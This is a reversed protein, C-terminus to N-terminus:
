EKRTRIYKTAITGQERSLGDEYELFARFVAPELAIKNTAIMGDSTWLWIYYGDHGVYVADGLYLRDELHDMGGLAPKM